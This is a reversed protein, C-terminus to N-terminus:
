NWKHYISIRSHYIVHFLYLWSSPTDFYSIWIEIGHLCNHICYMGFCRKGCHMPIFNFSTSENKGPSFKRCRCGSFACFMEILAAAWYFLLHVAPLLQLWVLFHHLIFVMFKMFGILFLIFSM